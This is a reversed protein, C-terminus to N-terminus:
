IGGEKVNKPDMEWLFFFTPPNIKHEVSSAKLFNCVAESSTIVIDLRKDEVGELILVMKKTRWRKPMPHWRSFYEKMINVMMKHDLANELIGSQEGALYLGLTLAPCM